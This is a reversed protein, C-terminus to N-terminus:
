KTYRVSEGTKAAIPLGKAWAPTDEMIQQLMTAAKDNTATVEVVIEDHVHLVVPANNAHCKLLADAMLDRSIAQDLNEILVPLGVLKPRSRQRQRFDCAQPFLLEQQQVRQRAGFGFLALPCLRALPDLLGLCHPPLESLLEARVFEGAKPLAHFRFLM